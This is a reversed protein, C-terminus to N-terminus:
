HLNSEKPTGVSSPKFLRLKSNLLVIWVANGGIICGWLILPLGDFVAMVLFALAFFDRKAMFQISAFFRKFIGRDPGEKFDEQIALLSGSSTNRILYIFMVLLSMALGFIALTGTIQIHADGRQAMGVVTGVFFCLYTFNDSLTDLWQGVKSSTLKLKSLEGDCGDLISSLKFLIAGWLVHWYDGYAVLVGSSIGVVSTIATVQNASLLTKALFRTIFLSVYRNFNRSIIGDTPKRCANLLFREANKMMEPTDVDHWYGNGIDFTGMQGRGSLLQIGDSLSCNGDKKAEELVDFVDPSLLFMGTDIANYSSITKGIRSIQEHDVWVKTADDLDFVQSIKYDVALLARNKGLSVQKFNELTVPDFIHDSMLLVFDEKLYDKACLVSIGNSKQWEPNEVFTIKVGLDQRQLSKIIKEKQYGVVIVFESIGAKKSSLIIRELLSLGAVRRLPKPVEDSEERKLRSGNGAAIILAKKIMNKHSVRNKVAFM